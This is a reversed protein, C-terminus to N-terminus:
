FEKMGSTIIKEDEKGRSDLKLTDSRGYCSVKYCVDDFENRFSEIRCFGASVPQYINFNKHSAFNPILVFTGDQFIIYKM